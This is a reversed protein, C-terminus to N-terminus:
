HNNNRSKIAETIEKISQSMEKENVDGVALYTSCNYHVGENDNWNRIHSLVECIFVEDFDIFCGIPCSLPDAENFTKRLTLDISDVIDSILSYNSPTLVFLLVDDPLDIDGDDDTYRDIFASLFVSANMNKDFENLLHRVDIAKM